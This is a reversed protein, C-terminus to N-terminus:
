RTVNIFINELEFLSNMELNEKEMRYEWSDVIFHRYFVKKILCLNASFHFAVQAGESKQGKKTM